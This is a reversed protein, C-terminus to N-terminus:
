NPRIEADARQRDAQAGPGIVALQRVTSRPLVRTDQVTTFNLLGNMSLPRNRTLVRAASRHAAEARKRSQAAREVALEVDQATSSSGSELDAHRRALEEARAAASDGPSPSSM